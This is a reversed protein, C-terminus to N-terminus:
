STAGQLASGLEEALQRRSRPSSYTSAPRVPVNINNTIYTNGSASNGKGAPIVQAGSPGVHVREGEHVIGWQGMPITGGSAFAGAFVSGISGAAGSGVGGVSGVGGGFGGGIAGLVIGPLKSWFGGGGGGGGTALGTLADALSNEIRQMLANLLHQLSGLLFSQFGKKFGGEIGDAVAQNLTSTLDSALSRMRERIMELREREVQLEVTAVRPRTTTAPEGGSTSGGGLDEWSPRDKGEKTVFRERTLDLIKRARTLSEVMDRQRRLAALQELEKKTGADLTGGYKSLERELTEIADSYQDTSGRTSDMERRWDQTVDEVRRNVEIAKQMEQNDKFQALSKAVLARAADQSQRPLSGIAAEIAEDVDSMASITAKTDDKLKDMIDSLLREKEAALATTSASGLIEASLRRYETRLGIVSSKLQQLVDIQQRAGGGGGGGVTPMTTSAGPKGGPVGVHSGVSAQGAGGAIAFEGEDASRQNGGVPEGALKRRAIEMLTLGVGAVGVNTSTLDGTEQNLQQVRNLGVSQGIQQDLARLRAILELLLSVNTTIQSSVTRGWTIWSSQNDQLNKAISNLGESVKTFLPEFAQNSLQLVADKINSLAGLATKSQKEMMDGFNHQSFKQFAELFVASSIKGQEVLKVLEARSKGLQGEMMKWAPIGAEALQNLEQTMVKGKSQMQSLALVVRDLRESGGGAAAVANGVDTLVPVVQQASFGLAQMRQSADVLERFQFPTKLAFAQLDRLHDDAAKASGLMTTFAIRTAELSSSYDFWASAADRLSSVFSVGVLTALGGAAGALLAAGGAGGGASPARQQRQQKRLEQEIERTARKSEKIRTNAEAKAISEVARQNERMIRLREREMRRIEATAERSQRKYEAILAATRQKQLSESAAKQQKETLNISGATQKAGSEVKKRASEYRSIDGEFVAVLRGIETAM